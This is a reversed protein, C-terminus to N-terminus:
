FFVGVFFAVCKSYMCARNECSNLDWYMHLMPNVDLTFFFSHGNEQNGDSSALTGIRAPVNMYSNDCHRISSGDTTTSAMTIQYSCLTPPNSHPCPHVNPSWPSSSSSATMIQLMNAAFDGMVSTTQLHHYCLMNDFRWQGLLCIIDADVQVCLLATAGHLSCELIDTPLFGLSPGIATVALGLLTEM